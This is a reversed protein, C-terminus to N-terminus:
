KKVGNSDYKALFVDYNGLLSNGDFVSSASSGTVYIDGGADVAVAVGEGFDTSTGGLLRTWQKNGASDYRVLFMDYNGGNTQGDFPDSATCGSVYVNGSADVAVNLGADTSIGGLMRTWQKNGAVDYKVLYMDYNGTNPQGDISGNTDGTVYVNGSADVAVRCGTMLSDSSSSGSQKTWQKNGNADYQVVFMDYGGASANGDLSGDTSGCVYVHGSTDVAVGWGRDTSTTGLQETWQKEGASNYKVVFMDYGGASANGDLSGDTFGSVYVNGSTDVAVDNGYDASGTGLQRTWQKNGASDYKVLFMDYSGANANGDLGVTTNGTVYVNGSTDVAVGMYINWIDAQSTTGLQRTWQRTGAADYKVLFMDYGGSSPGDMSGSTYGAIYVNGSADVAVEQGYDSNTTGLRKTFSAVTLTFSQIADPSVGNSATITLHYIGNTGAAPTGSLIGISNDFTIGSPLTDGTLAFTPTPTGTATVTFTSASGLTFETSDASTITPAQNTDYGNLANIIGTLATTIGTQETRHTDDGTESYNTTNNSCSIMMLMLFVIIGVLFFEKRWCVINKM